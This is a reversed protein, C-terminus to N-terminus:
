RTEFSTKADKYEGTVIPLYKIAGELENCKKELDTYKNQLSHYLDNLIYLENQDDKIKTTKENYFNIASKTNSYYDDYTSVEYTELTDLVFNIQGNSEWMKVINNTNYWKGDLRIFGM